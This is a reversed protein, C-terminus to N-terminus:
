ASFDVTDVYGIGQAGICGFGIMFYLNGSDIQDQTYTCTTSVYTWDDTKATIDFIGPEAWNNNQYSCILLAYPCYLNANVWASMTYTVGATISGRLPQRIYDQVIGQGKNIRASNPGDHKVDTDISVTDEGIYLEWPALSSSEDDFGTNSIFPITSPAASTTSVATVTAAETTAIESTIGETISLATTSTEEPRLSTEISISKTIIVSSEEYSLYTSSTAVTTTEASSFGTTSGITTSIDSTIFGETIRSDPKCPGAQSVAALYATIFAVIYTQPVVRLSYM